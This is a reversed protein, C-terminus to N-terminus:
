SYYQSHIVFSSFLDPVREVARYSEDFAAIVLLMLKICTATNFLFIIGLYKVKPVWPSDGPHGVKQKPSNRNTMCVYAICTLAHSPVSLYLVYVSLDIVQM